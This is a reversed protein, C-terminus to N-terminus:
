GRTRSRDSMALAQEVAPLMADVVAGIARANPHIGDILVMAPHGLIGPPFFSHRVAGHALALDAHITAYGRARARLVPPPDVHALLVPIGCRGFEGLIEGLQARTRAPPVGRLVDNPGLQVIALDPRAALTSLVGPLRRVADGTTDGSRGANIVRAQPLNARLRQELRAPFSQDAPLGYGAILSDGFALILPDSPTM